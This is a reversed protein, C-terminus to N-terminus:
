SGRNRRGFPNLRRWLDLVFPLPDGWSFVAYAKQGKVSAWWERVTLERRRLYHLSSAVDRALYIWKAGGYTQERGSPLNLGVLDCYMTYLIPVGGAEAIASRGTPRGVNPEIIYHRGSDEDVKVELYGLGHYEVSRFLRLTLDLVEDNRVEEGLSSRM